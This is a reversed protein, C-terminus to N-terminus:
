EARRLREVVSEKKGFRFAEEPVLIGLLLLIPAIVLMPWIVFHYSMFWIGGALLRIVTISFLSGLLLSVCVTALAYYLGELMLMKSLQKRTMGIAEMMAFEQQRTVMGTLVSNMFNLLGIIGIVLTLVGGVLTFLGTMGSFDKLWSLKSEYDMLPEIQTTYNEMWRAIEEEKEDEADFSYSMLYDDSSMELFVQTPVYYAFNQGMRNTMAYYDSKILSLIEFERKQGNGYTLIVKDGPQHLVENEEVFNNDDTEVAYLLYKGTKMKDKIVQLDTEGKWVEIKKYFFDDMGYFSANYTNDDMMTYPIFKNGWYWGLNGDKDTAIYDPPTWCAKDLGVEGNTLYLRGGEQFGDLKQVEEVFSESLKEEQVDERNYGFYCDMGFYKANGIVFDSSVFKKLYKDMDFSHTITFVSNLLIVSLSLSILVLITKRKNRGLNSLAMKWLKGGDTSKKSKRKDQYGETYRVAEVPSIRAAMRSPKGASIWVTLLTFVAAEVFIWPNMSVTVQDVTYSSLELFKPVVTKGLIFGGILGLPIGLFGLVLAQRRLIKKIQKGTTGITKLLGYYRIDRIVSIQFINYIILYGTLIILLLGGAVAGVTISDQEAGDSIYAWNANSAIYNEDGEETSYGHSEIIKNLKEQIHFSNSFSVDMRISGTSSYDEPYTYVLEDAYRELYADSVIVFGTNMASDAKMVGSVLFDREIIEESDQRLQMQLTIRQGAEPKKGLLELSVEDMLIEDAAKPERGDIIDVFCHPYHYTPYYWAEVHRKIFEPNRIYEAVMMCPASEEISPDSSLEEYQEWSLNKITGHCDGGSQRMTERQFNEMTGLGITFLATFLMATLAIAAVAIRNRTKAAQFSRNSLRRIVKQNKVKRM